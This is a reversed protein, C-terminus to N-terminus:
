NVLTINGFHARDIVQAAAPTAASELSPKGCSNKTPTTVFPAGNSIGPFNCKQKITAFYTKMGSNM